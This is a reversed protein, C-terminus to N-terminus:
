SQRGKKRLRRYRAYQFVRVGLRPLKGTGGCGPCEGWAYRWIADREKGSGECARCARFPHWALSVAYLGALVILGLALLVYPNM